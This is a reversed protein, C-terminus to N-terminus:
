IRQFTFLRANKRNNKNRKIYLAKEEWVNKQNMKLEGSFLIDYKPINQLM